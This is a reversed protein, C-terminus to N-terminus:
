WQKVSSLQRVEVKVVQLLEFVQSDTSESLPRSIESFLYTSRNMVEGEKYM